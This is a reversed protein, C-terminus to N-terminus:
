DHCTSLDDPSSRSMAHVVQSQSRPSSRTEPIQPNNEQSVCSDIWAEQRRGGAAHQRILPRGYSFDKGYERVQTPASTMTSPNSTCVRAAGAVCNLRSWATRSASTPWAGGNRSRSLDVAPVVVGFQTLRGVDPLHKRLADDSRGCYGIRTPRSGRCELSQNGFM